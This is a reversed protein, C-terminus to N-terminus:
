RTPEDSQAICKWGALMMFFAILSLIMNIVGGVIPIIGLVGGIVGLIMAVFLKSAGRRAMEPFTTSNKLGSYAILLMIWAILNLLGGVISIVPICALVAGILALITATYISGVRPADASHVQTKFLNIGKMFLWYGYVVALTALMHLVDWLGFGGSPMGGTSLASFADAASNMSCIFGFIAAAVGGWAYIQVSKYLAATTQKWSTTQLNEAM